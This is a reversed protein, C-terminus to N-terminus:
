QSERGSLKDNCGTRHLKELKWFLANSFFINKESVNLLVEVDYMVTVICFENLIFFTVFKM